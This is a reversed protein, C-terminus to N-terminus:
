GGHDNVARGSGSASSAPRRQPGGLVVGSLVDLAVPKVLHLDFGAQKSRLRDSERGYGTIAVLRLAGPANEAERL